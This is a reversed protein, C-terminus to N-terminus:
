PRTTTNLSFVRSFRGEDTLALWTRRTTAIANGSPPLSNAALLIDVREVITIARQRAHARVDEAGRHQQVRRWPRRKAGRRRHASHLAIRATSISARNHYHLRM